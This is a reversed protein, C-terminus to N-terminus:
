NKNGMIRIITKHHWNLDYYSGTIIFKNGNIDFNEIKYIRNSIDDSFTKNEFIWFSNGNYHSVIKYFDRWNITNIKYKPSFLFM